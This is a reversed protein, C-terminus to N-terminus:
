ELISKMDEMENHRAQDSMRIYSDLALVLMPVLSAVVLIITLKHRYKMNKIKRYVSKKM